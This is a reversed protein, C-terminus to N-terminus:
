WTGPQTSHRAEDQSALSLLEEISTTGNVINEMTNVVGELAAVADVLGQLSHMPRNSCLLLMGVPQVVVCSCGCLVETLTVDVKGPVCLEVACGAGGIGGGWGGSPPAVAAAVQVGWPELVPEWAAHAAHFVNVVGGARAEISLAQGEDMGCGAHVNVMAAELLPTEHPCRGGLVQVAAVGLDVKIRMPPLAPHHASSGGRAPKITTLLSTAATTPRHVAVPACLQQALVTVCYLRHEALWAAIKDIGVSLM